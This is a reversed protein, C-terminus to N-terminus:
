PQLWDALRLDPINSFDATNHTVLTCDHTLATAAILLDMTPVTIGCARTRHWIQAYKEACIEDFVHVNFEKAFARIGESLRTAVFEDSGWCYLEALTISSISIRGSYQFLRHTFDCKGRIHVSCINTDLLFSM